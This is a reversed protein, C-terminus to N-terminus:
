TPFKLGKLPDPAGQRSRKAVFPSGQTGRKFRKALKPSSRPALELNKAEFLYGLAEDRCSSAERKSDLAAEDFHKAGQVRSLLPFKLSKPRM